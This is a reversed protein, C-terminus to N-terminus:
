EKERCKAEKILEAQEVDCERLGDDEPGDLYKSDVEVVFTGSEHGYEYVTGVEDEEGPVASLKVRKGVWQEFPSDSKPLPHQARYERYNM